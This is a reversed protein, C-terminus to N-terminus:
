IEKRPDNKLKALMDECVKKHTKNGLILHNIIKASEKKFNESANLRHTFADLHLLYITTASEETLRDNEIHKILEEKKM